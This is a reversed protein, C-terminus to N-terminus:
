ARDPRGAGDAPYSDWSPLEHLAALIELQEKPTNTEDAPAGADWNWPGTYGAQRAAFFAADTDKRSSM